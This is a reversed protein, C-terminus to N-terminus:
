LGSVDCRTVGLRRALTHDAQSDGVILCKQLALKYRHAFELVLGPLPKRCWCIPPGPAHPCVAFDMELDLLARAREFCARVAGETTTGQAIQPRWATALLLWGEARYGALLERIDPAIDVEEPQLITAGDARSSLVHDYDLILARATFDPQALRSFTREEIAAFGEELAPPELQREYRFQADPGFYRHDSKGLARLEEPMPLRGHAQLLREVANIQADPIGTTLWVCRVPLDHQWACEIVENRSKRTAYTNDLVWCRNGARLGADLERVLDSLTGGTSDRNLRQYGRAVFEEALSSKGAAPMGTVLVVEGTTSNSPRREQRSSRLLKGAPFRADLRERDTATLTIALARGISRASEERTAGPIPVIHPGLDLLWALAIEYPSADHAAAIERIAPDRGLRERKQAGLPRYAILQIGQERCYEAVGNRLNEDHLPSLDVQVSSIDAIKRALEIQGVTVNSLGLRRVKGESQLAALARVSTELPTRPDVVHLQYLDIVDVDLARRSAECAARLHSARGDAVWRGEPRRMGGKTAVVVRSGDGQWTRLAEAILRENHGTDSEDLCYADATDLLTVGADLAAHIVATGRAADRPEVTSLRMCGLGITM